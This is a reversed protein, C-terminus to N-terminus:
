KYFQRCLPQPTYVNCVPSFNSKSYSFRMGNARVNIPPKQVQRTVEMLEFPKSYAMWSFEDGIIVM